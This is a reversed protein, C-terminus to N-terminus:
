ENDLRPPLGAELRRRQARLRQIRKDQEKVDEDLQALRTQKPANSGRLMDLAKGVSLKTTEAM